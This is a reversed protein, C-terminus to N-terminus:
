HDASPGSTPHIGPGLRGREHPVEQTPQDCAVPGLPCAQPAESRWRLLCQYARDWRGQGDRVECFQRRIKRQYKM